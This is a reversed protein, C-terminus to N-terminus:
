FFQMIKQRWLVILYEYAGRSVTGNANPRPNGEIGAINQAHISTTGSGWLQSTATPKLFSEPVAPNVSLYEPSFPNIVLKGTHAPLLNNDDACYSLSVYYSPNHKAFSKECGSINVNVFKFNDTTSWAGVYIGTGCYYFDCNQIRCVSDGSDGTIVGRGARWFKCNKLLSTTLNSSGWDVLPAGKEDYDDPMVGSFFCDTVIFSNGDDSQMTFLPGTAVKPSFSRRFWLDKILVVGNKLHFYFRTSSSPRDIYYTKSHDGGHDSLGQITVTHGGGNVYDSPYAVWDTFSQDSVCQLIYDTTLSVEPIHNKTIDVLHKWALYLNDYDGGTGFTITTSM